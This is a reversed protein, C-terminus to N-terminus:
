PIKLANQSLVHRLHVLTCHELGLSESIDANSPTMKVDKHFVSDSLHESVLSNQKTVAAFNLCIFPM